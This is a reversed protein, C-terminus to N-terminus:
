IIRTRALELIRAAAGKDQLLQVWYTGVDEMPSLIGLDQQFALLWTEKVVTCPFSYPKILSEM